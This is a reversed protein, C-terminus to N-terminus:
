GERHVVTPRRCNEAVQRAVPQVFLSALPSRKHECLVVVAAGLDEAKQCIMRSVSVNCGGRVLDLVTAAGHTRALGMFHAEFYARANEEMRDMLGEEPPLSAALGGFAGPTLTSAAPLVHLLHLVDGDRYLHDLTWNVARYAAESHDVAVVLNRRGEPAPSPVRQEFTAGALEAALRVRRVARVRPPPPASLGHGAARGARRSIQLAMEAAARWRWRRGGDPCAELNQHDFGEAILPEVAAPALAALRRGASVDIVEDATGHMVLLPVDVRKILVHNPFIDLFGPWFRLGPNFVRVGSLLPSHLVVGAVGPRQAALWVTPGSGVSQGYLVVDRRPVGHLAELADLAACIDGHTASVSAPRAAGPGYGTYDYGMVNVRLLRGLDRFVPLMQGLDVANGHSYLLTTRARGGRGDLHPVFASVIRSGSATDLWAVRASTVRQYSRDLPQIYLQGSGDRHEQVSYSPPDPPFFALRSAIADVVRGWPGPPAGASGRGGGGGGGGARAAGGPPWCGAAARQQKGGGAAM